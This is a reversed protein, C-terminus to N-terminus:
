DKRFPCFSLLYLAVNMRYQGIFHSQAVIKFRYSMHPFYNRLLFESLEKERWPLNNLKLVKAIVGRVFTFNKQSGPIGLAVLIENLFSVLSNVCYKGQEPDNAYKNCYPVLQGISHKEGNSYKIKPCDVNEPGSLLKRAHEPRNSRIASSSHNTWKQADVICANLLLVVISSKLNHM